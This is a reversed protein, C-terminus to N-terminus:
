GDVLYVGRAFSVSDELDSVFDTSDAIELLRNLLGGIREKHADKKIKKSDNIKIDLVGSDDAIGYTERIDEVVSYLAEPLYEKLYPKINYPRFDRNENGAFSLRDCQKIYDELTYAIGSLSNELSYKRRDVDIKELTNIDFGAGDVVCHLYYLGARRSHLVCALLDSAERRVEVKENIEMSYKSTIDYLFKPGVPIQVWTPHNSGDEANSAM